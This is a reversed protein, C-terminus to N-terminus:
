HFPSSSPPAGGDAGAGLTAPAVRPVLFAIATYVLENQNKFNKRQSKTAGFEKVGRGLLNESCEEFGAQSRVWSMVDGVLIADSKKGTLKLGTPLISVVDGTTLNRQKKGAAAAGGGGGGGGKAKGGKAAAAGGKIKRDDGDRGEGGGDPLAATIPTPLKSTSALLAPAPSSFVSTICETVSSNDVSTEKVLDKTIAKIGVGDEVDEINEEDEKFLAAKSPTESKTSFKNASVPLALAHSPLETMTQQKNTIPSVIDETVVESTPMLMSVESAPTLKGTSALLAPAPSSFVSTICETVSSNDVITEKVLDKTIAKPPSVVDEPLGDSTLVLTCVGPAHMALKSVDPDQSCLAGDPITTHPLTM